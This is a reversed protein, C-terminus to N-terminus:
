ACLVITGYSTQTCRILDGCQCLLMYSGCMPHNTLWMVRSSTYIEIFQKNCGNCIYNNRCSLEYNNLHRDKHM